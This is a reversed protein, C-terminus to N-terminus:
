FSHFATIILKSRKRLTYLVSFYNRPNNFRARVRRMFVTFDHGRKELIDAVVLEFEHAIADPVRVKSRSTNSDFHLM